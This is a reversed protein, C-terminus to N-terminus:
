PFSRLDDTVTIFDTDIHGGGCRSEAKLFEGDFLAIFDSDIHGINIFNFVQGM